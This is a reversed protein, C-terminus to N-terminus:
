QLTVNMTAQQNGVDCTITATGAGAGSIVLSGTTPSASLTGQPPGALRARRERELQHM